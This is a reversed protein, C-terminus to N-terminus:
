RKRKKKKNFVQNIKVLFRLLAALQMMRSPMDAASKFPSKTGGFGQHNKAFNAINKKIIMADRRVNDSGDAVNSTVISIDELILNVRGLTGQAETQIGDMLSDARAAVQNVQHITEPLKAISEELDPSAKDLLARSSALIKSLEFFFYAVFALAVIGALMLLGLLLSHLDVMVALIPFLDMSPAKVGGALLGTGLSLLSSLIPSSLIPSTLIM